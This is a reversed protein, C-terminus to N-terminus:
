ADGPRHHAGLCRGGCAECATRGQGAQLRGADSEPAAEAAQLHGLVYRRRCRCDRTLDLRDRDSVPNGRKLVRKVAARPEKAAAEDVVPRVNRLVTKTEGTEYNRVTLRDGGTRYGFTVRGGHFRGAEERTRVSRPLNRRSEDSYRKASLADLGTAFRDEPKSLDYLRGQQRLSTKLVAPSSRRTVARARSCSRVCCKNQRNLCYIARPDTLRRWVNM